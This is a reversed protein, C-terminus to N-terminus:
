DSPDIESSGEDALAVDELYWEVRAQKILEDAIEPTRGDADVENFARRLAEINIIDEIADMYAAVVHKATFAKRAHEEIRARLEDASVLSKVVFTIPFRQIKDIDLFYKKLDLTETVQYFRGLPRMVFDIGGDNANTRGTKYLILPREEVAEKEPGIWVSQAAYHAKLIAFSVIEFIRADIEPALLSAIFDRREAESAGADIDALRQCTVLFSDFADRKAQVYADIIEIVAPALNIQVRADPAFKLLGENFWYRSTSLDRLIPVYESMPFYKRFEENLRSNLAHNQLKKGFPLERQREFLDSFRAGEYDTYAGSDPFGKRIYDEVLVYIAYLNAFSGRAKSGRDASRTKVNLYQILESSELVKAAVGDGFRDKLIKSIVPTFGHEKV